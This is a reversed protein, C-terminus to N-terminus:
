RLMIHFSGSVSWIESPLYQFRKFTFMATTKCSHTNITRWTQLHVGPVIYIWWQRRRRKPLHGWGDSWSPHWQPRIWTKWVRQALIRQGSISLYLVFLERFYIVMFGHMIFSSSKSCVESRSLKWDDNLDMEQFSEHSRPGNRIEMIEIDFILSSEPPIKGSYPACHCSLTLEQPTKSWFKSWFIM